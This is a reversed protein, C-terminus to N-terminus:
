DLTGDQECQEIKLTRYLREGSLRKALIDLIESKTLRMKRFLYKGACIGRFLGSVNCWTSKADGERGNERTRKFYIDTQCYTLLVVRKVVM